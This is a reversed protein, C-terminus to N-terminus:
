AAARDHGKPRDLRGMVRDWMEQGRKDMYREGQPYAKHEVTIPFGGTVMRTMDQMINRALEVHEDIRDLPAKILFADHAPACVAIGSETLKIAALMLIEFGMTQCPWNRISRPNFEEPVFRRWGFV